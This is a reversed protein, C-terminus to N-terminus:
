LRSLLWCVQERGELLFPLGLLLLYAMGMWWPVALGEIWPYFAFQNAKAFILYGNAVLLIGLVCLLIIDYRNIKQKTYHSRRVEGYGRSRMSDATEISSEMSWSMLISAMRVGQVLSQKKTPPENGLMAKQATQIERSKRITDPIYRFIMAVMMSTTPAIRGFLSLFKDSTMVEQYCSFWQIVGVLMGGACLGYCIAEATIPHDGLMFLVTLGLGNFFANAAAVIVVVVLGYGLSRCVNRWGKLYCGYLLAMCLSLTVYLPHMTCMAFGITGCFYLFIVAPHVDCFVHRKM